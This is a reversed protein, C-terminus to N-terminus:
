QGGNSYEFHAGPAGQLYLANAIHPSLENESCFM